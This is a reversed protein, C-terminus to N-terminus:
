KNIQKRTQRRMQKKKRQKRFKQRYLHSHARTRTHSDRECAANTHAIWTQNQARGHRESLSLSLAMCCYFCTCLVYAFVSFQNLRRNVCVVVVCMFLSVYLWPLFLMRYPYPAAVNADCDSGSDSDSSEDCM